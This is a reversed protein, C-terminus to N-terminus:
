RIKQSQELFDYFSRSATIVRLHQDLVLLPERVTNVISESYEPLEIDTSIKNM